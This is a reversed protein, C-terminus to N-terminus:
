KAYRVTERTGKTCITYWGFMGAIGGLTLLMLFIAIYAGAEGMHPLVYSFMLWDLLIAGFIVSPVTISVTLAASAQSYDKLSKSVAWQYIGYLTIQALWLLPLFYAMILIFQFFLTLAFLVVLGSLVLTTIALGMEGNKGPSSIGMCCGVLICIVGALLLGQCLYGIIMMFGGGGMGIGPLGFGGGFGAGAGFLSLILTVLFM